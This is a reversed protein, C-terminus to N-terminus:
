AAAEARLARVARAVVEPDLGRYDEPYTRGQARLAQVMQAARADTEADMRRAAAGVPTASSDRHGYYDVPMGSMLLPLAAPQYLWTNGVALSRVVPDLATAWVPRSADVAAAVRRTDREMRARGGAHAVHYRRTLQYCDGYQEVSGGGVQARIAHAAATYAARIISGGVGRPGAVHWTRIVDAGRREDSVTVRLEPMGLAGLLQVTSALDMGDTYECDGAWQAALTPLGCETAAARLIATISTSTDM